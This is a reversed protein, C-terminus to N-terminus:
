EHQRKSAELPVTCGLINLPPFVAKLKTIAGPNVEMMTYSTKCANPKDSSSYKHSGQKQSQSM